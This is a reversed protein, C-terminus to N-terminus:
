PRRSRRTAVFGDSTFNREGTFFTDIEAESLDFNRNHYGRGAGSAHAIHRQM